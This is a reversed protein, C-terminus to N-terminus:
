RQKLHDFYVYNRNESVCYSETIDKGEWTEFYQLITFPVILYPFSIAMFLQTSWYQILHM